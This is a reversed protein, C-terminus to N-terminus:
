SGQQPAAVAKSLGKRELPKLSLANAFDKWEGEIEDVAVAGNEQCWEIARDQYKQLSL